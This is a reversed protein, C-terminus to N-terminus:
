TRRRRSSRRTGAPAHQLRQRRRRGEALLGLLVRPEPWPEIKSRPPPRRPARAGDRGAGRASGRGLLEVLALQQPELLLREAGEEGRVRERLDLIRQAGPHVARERLRASLCSPEQTVTPPMTVSNLRCGTRLVARGITTRWGRRRRPGPRSAPSRCPRRPEISNRAASAITTIALGARGCPDHRSSARRGPPPARELRGLVLDGLRPRGPVGPGEADFRHRRGEARRQDLLELDDEPVEGPLGLDDQHHLGSLPELSSRKPRSYRTRREAPSSASSSASNPVAARAAYFRISRQCNPTGM